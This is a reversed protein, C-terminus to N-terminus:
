GVAHVTMRITSHRHLCSSQVAQLIGRYGTAADTLITNCAFLACLSQSMAKTFCCSRLGAVRQTGEPGPVAPQYRVSVHMDVM